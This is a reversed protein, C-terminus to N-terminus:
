DAAILAHSISLYCVQGGSGSITFPMWAEENESGLNGCYTRISDALAEPLEAHIGDQTLYGHDTVLYSGQDSWDIGVAVADPLHSRVIDRIARISKRAIEQHLHRVLNGMWDLESEIGELSVCDNESLGVNASVEAADPIYEGM